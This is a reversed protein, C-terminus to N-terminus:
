DEERTEIGSVRGREDRLVTNIKKKAPPLTVTVNVPPTNVTINPADTHITPAGVTVSSPITEPKPTQRLEKVLGVLDLFEPSHEAHISPMGELAAAKRAPATSPPPKVSPSVNPATAPIGDPNDPSRSPRMGNDATKRADTDLVLGYKDALKQENALEAFVDEVDYGQSAIVKTASTFGSRVSAKAANLEKQPDVWQWGQTIWNVDLYQDQDRAYLRAKIEGAFVASELFSQWVPRCFQFVIVAHQLQEIRRRFTLLGARISSYNVGTLDGTLQEYTVGIAAAIERLCATNFDKFGTGTAAPDAFKVDEGPRLKQLTGPELGTFSIGEEIPFNGDGAVNPLRQEPVPPDDPNIETIFGAFLAAVKKRTLDADTYQDYDYLRVLARSLWPEGRIQGPRIPRFLHYVQAAPVRVPVLNYVGPNYEGPHVPYLWYAVRQGIQNFEIGAKVINGNDLVVNYTTPCHEAELLQLQMPIKFGDSPRRYRVRVFVEGGEMMGRVALAQLGYFDSTGHSDCYDTWQTWLKQLFAKVDPDPHQCQPKIGTGIAESVFVESGNFAWANKRIMDRSRARLVDSAGFLASNVSDNGPNWGLTRRGISAGEYTSRGQISWADAKPQKVPVIANSWGAAALKRKTSAM